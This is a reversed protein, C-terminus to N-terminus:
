KLKAQKSLKDMEAAEHLKIEKHISLMEKVLSAPMEYVEM